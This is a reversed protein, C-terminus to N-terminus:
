DVYGFSWIMVTLIFWTASLATFGMIGVRLRSSFILWGSLFALVGAAIAFETALQLLRSEGIRHMMFNRQPYQERLTAQQSTTLGLNSQAEVVPMWGGIILRHFDGKCTATQGAYTIQCQKVEQPISILNVELSRDFLSTQCRDQQGSQTCSFSRGPIFVSQIQVGAIRGGIPMPAHHALVVIFTIVLTTFVAITFYLFFRVMRRM